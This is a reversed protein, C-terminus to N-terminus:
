PEQKGEDDSSGQHPKYIYRYKMVRALTEDEPHGNENISFPRKLVEEELSTVDPQDHVQNMAQQHLREKEQLEEIEWSYLKRQPGYPRFFLALLLGSILGLLHSEWSVQERLPFIGWVMGGYLFVVILSTAMLRPHKRIIGSTFLFAALSYILGSAGVHWAERALMWVWFGTILIALVFITPAVQRYFYFLMSGLVLLPFTNSILHGFDAHIFVALFIGPLGRWSLPYIGLQTFSAGSLHEVVKVIWLLLVFLTPYMISSLMRRKDRDPSEPLDMASGM